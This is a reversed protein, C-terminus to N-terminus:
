HSVSPNAFIRDSNAKVTGWAAKSDASSMYRIRLFAHAYLVLLLINRYPTFIQFILLFFSFVEANANLKNIQASRALVANAGLSVVRGLVPINGLRQKSYDALGYLALLFVPLVFVISPASTTFLSSYLIYHLRMDTLFAFMTQDGGQQHRLTRYVKKATNLNPLGHTNVLGVTYSGMAALMCIRFARASLMQDGPVAAATSCVLILGNLFFVIFSTLQAM